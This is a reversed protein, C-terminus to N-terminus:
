RVTPLHYASRSSLPGALSNNNDYFFLHLLVITANLKTTRKMRARDKTIANDSDIARHYIIAQLVCIIIIFYLM